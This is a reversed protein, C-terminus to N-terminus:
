IKFYNSGKNTTIIIKPWSCIYLSNVFITKIEIIVKREEDLIDILVKWGRAKTTRTLSVIYFNHM